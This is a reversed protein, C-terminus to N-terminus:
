GYSWELSDLFFKWYQPYEFRLYLCEFNSFRDLTSIRTAYFEVDM